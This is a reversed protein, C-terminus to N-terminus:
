ARIPGLTVQFYLDMIKIQFNLSSKHFHFILWQQPDHNHKQKQGQQQCLKQSENLNKEYHGYLLGTKPHLKM